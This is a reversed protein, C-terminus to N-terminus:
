KISELEIFRRIVSVSEDLTCRRAEQRETAEGSDHIDDLQELRRQLERLSKRLVAALITAEDPSLAIMEETYGACGSIPENIWKM